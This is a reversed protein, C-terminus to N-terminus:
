RQLPMEVTTCRSDDKSADRLLSIGCGDRSVDRCLLNRHNDRSTVRLFTIIRDDRSTDRCLPIICDDGSSDRCLLNTSADGSVDRHFINRCRRQSSIGVTVGIGDFGSINKCFIQPNIIVGLCTFGSVGLDHIGDCEDSYGYTFYKQM